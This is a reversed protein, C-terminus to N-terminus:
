VSLLRSLHCLQYVNTVLGRPMVSAVYMMMMMMVVLLLLLLLLSVMVVCEDNIRQYTKIPQWLGLLNINCLSDHSM